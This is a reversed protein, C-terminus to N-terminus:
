FGEGLNDDYQKATCDENVSHLWLFCGMRNRDHQRPNYTRNIHNDSLEHWNLVIASQSEALDPREKAYLSYDSVVPLCRNRWNDLKKIEEIEIPVYKSAVTNETYILLFVTCKSVATCSWLRFDAVCDRDSELVTLNNERLYEAIRNKLQRDKGTWSIFVDNMLINLTETNSM